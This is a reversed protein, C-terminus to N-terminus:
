VYNSRLCSGQQSDTIAKKCPPLPVSLWTKMKKISAMEDDIPTTQQPNIAVATYSIDEELNAVYKKLKM